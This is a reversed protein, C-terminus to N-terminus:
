PKCHGCPTYGADIAEQRTTFYVRNEPASLYSCWPHHFKKTNKNGIYNYVPIVEFKAVLTRTAAATFTYTASTSVSSSGEEWRLFSYGSAPTAQLTVSQGATFM